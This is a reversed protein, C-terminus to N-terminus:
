SRAPHGVTPGRGHRRKHGGGGAQKVLRRVVKNVKAENSVGETTAVKDQLWAIYRDRHKNPPPYQHMLRRARAVIQRTEKTGEHRNQRRDRRDDRRSARETQINHRHTERDSRRSAKEGARNHRKTEKQSRRDRRNDALTDRKSLKFDKKDLGFQKTQLAENFREERKQLRSQKKQLALGASSERMGLRAQAKSIEQDLRRAIEESTKAAKELQVKQRATSVEKLANALDSQNKISAAAIMAFNSASLQGM